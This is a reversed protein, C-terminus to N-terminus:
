AEKREKNISVGGAYAQMISFSRENLCPRVREFYLWVIMTPETMFHFKDTM